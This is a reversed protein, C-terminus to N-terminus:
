GGGGQYSPVPGYKPTLPLTFYASCNVFPDLTPSAVDYYGGSFDNTAYPVVFDPSMRLAVKSKPKLNTLNITGPITNTTLPSFGGGTPQPINKNYYLHTLLQANFTQKKSKNTIIVVPKLTSGFKPNKPVNKIVCIMFVPKPKGGPGGPKSTIPDAHSGVLFAVGGIAFIAVFAILLIDHAFGKSNIKKM